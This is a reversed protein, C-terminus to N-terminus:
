PHRLDAVFRAVTDTVQRPLLPNAVAISVADAGVLYRQRPHRSEVAGV